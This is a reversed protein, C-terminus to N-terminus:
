GPNAVWKGNAEVTVEYARRADDGFDVVCQYTGAGYSDVSDASCYASKVTEPAGGASEFRGDNVISSELWTSDVRASDNVAAFVVTWFVWSVVFTAAFTLWYRGGPMGAAQARKARRWAPIAGFIGFLATIVIVPTIGDRAQGVPGYAYPQPGFSGAGLGQAALGYGYPQQGSWGQTQAHTPQPHYANPGAAAGPATTNTLQFPPPASGPFQNGSKNFHEDATMHRAGDPPPLQYETPSSKPV